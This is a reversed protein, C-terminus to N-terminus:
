SSVKGPLNHNVISDLSLHLLWHGHVLTIRSFGKMALTTGSAALSPLPLLGAVDNGDTGDDLSGAEESAELPEAEIEQHEATPFGQGKLLLSKDDDGEESDDSESEDSALFEKLELGM